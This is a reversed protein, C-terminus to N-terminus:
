PDVLLLDIGTQPVSVQELRRSAARLVTRAPSGTSSQRFAVLVRLAAGVAVCIVARWLGANHSAHVDQM